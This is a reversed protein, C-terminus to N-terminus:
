KRLKGLVKKYLWTAGNKTLYVELQPSKESEIVVVDGDHDVTLDVTQFPFQYLQLVKQSVQIMDEYFPLTGKTLDCPLFRDDNVFEGSDLFVGWSAGRGTNGYGKSKITPFRAVGFQFEKDFFALRIDAIGDGVMFEKLKDHSRIREEFLIGRATKWARGVGMIAQAEEILEKETLVDGNIDQYRGDDTKELIRIGLGRSLHNPKMVFEDHDLGPSIGKSDITYFYTEPVRVVSGVKKKFGQKSQIYDGSRGYKANLTQIKRKLSKIVRIKHTRKYPNKLSDLFDQHSMRNYSLSINRNLGKPFEM